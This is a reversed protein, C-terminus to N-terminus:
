FIVMGIIIASVWHFVLFMVTSGTIGWFRKDAKQMIRISNLMLFIMISIWIMQATSNV